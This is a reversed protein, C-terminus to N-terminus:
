EFRGVSWGMWSPAPAPGPDNLHIIRVADAFQYSIMITDTGQIIQFPYPMYNARPVGPMYCKIEPDDTWRNKRNEERKARAEPLYPIEGGVVVGPGPPVALLAGLAPVNGP